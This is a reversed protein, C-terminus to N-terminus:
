SRPAPLLTETSAGTEVAKRLAATEALMWSQYSYGPAPMTEYVGVIPIHHARALALFTATLPDTVQQNYVLM